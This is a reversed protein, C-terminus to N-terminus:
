PQRKLPKGVILHTSKDDTQTSKNCTGAKVASTYTQGTYFQECQKRADPFQINNECKNQTMEEREEVTSMTQLTIMQGSSVNPQNTMYALNDVINLNMATAAYLM